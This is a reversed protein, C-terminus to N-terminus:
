GEGRGKRGKAEPFLWVAGIMFLALGVAIWKNAQLGIEQQYFFMGAAATAVLLSIVAKVKNPM